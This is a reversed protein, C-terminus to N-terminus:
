LITRIFFHLQGPGTNKMLPAPQFV